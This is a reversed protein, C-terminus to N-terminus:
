AAADQDRPALRLQARHQAEAREAANRRETETRVKGFTRREEEEVRQRHAENLLDAYAVAMDPLTPVWPQATEHTALWLLFRPDAHDVTLPNEPDNHPWPASSTPRKGAVMAAAPRAQWDPWVADLNAIWGAREIVHQLPVGGGFNVGGSERTVYRGINVASDGPVLAGLLRGQADRVARYSETLTTLRSWAASAEPGAKIAHSASTVGTLDGALSHVDHLVTSLPEQLATLAHDAGANLTQEAHNELRSRLARLIDAEAQNIEARRRTEAARAGLDAPIPEGAILRDATDDILDRWAEADNAGQSRYRKVRDLAALAALYGPVADLALHYPSRTDTTTDNTPTM